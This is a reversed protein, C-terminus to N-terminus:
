KRRFLLGPSPLHQGIGSGVLGLGVAHTGASDPGFATLLSGALIQMLSTLFATWNIDSISSEDAM